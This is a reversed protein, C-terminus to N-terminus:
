FRLPFCNLYFLSNMHLVLLLEAQELQIKGRRQSCFYYFCSPTWSQLTSAVLSFWNNKFLKNLELRYVTSTTLFGRLEHGTSSENQFIPSKLGKLKNAGSKVCILFCMKFVQWSCPGSVDGSTNKGQGCDSVSSPYGYNKVTTKIPQITNGM